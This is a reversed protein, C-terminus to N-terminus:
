NIICQVSATSTTGDNQEQVVLVIKGFGFPLASGIAAGITAGTSVATVGYGVVGNSVGVAKTNISTAIDVDPSVTVGASTTKRFRITGLGTTPSGTEAITTIVNLVSIDRLDLLVSEYETTAVAKMDKASLDLDSASYIKHFKSELM